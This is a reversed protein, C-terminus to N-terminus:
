KLEYVASVIRTIEIEGFNTNELDPETQLFNTSNFGKTTTESIQGKNETTLSVLRGLKKNNAKAIALAKIRANKMALALAENELNEQNNISFYINSVSNAGSNYLNVILQDLKSLNQVTAELINSAQFEKNTQSPPILQPYAIKIDNQDVGFNKLLLM